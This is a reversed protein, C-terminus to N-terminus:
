KKIFDKVTYVKSNAKLKKHYNEKLQKKTIIRSEKFSNNVEGGDVVVRAQKPDKVMTNIEKTIETRTKGTGDVDLLNDYENLLKYQEETIKFKRAM